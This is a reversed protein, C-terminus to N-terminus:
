RISGRHESARVAEVVREGYSGDTSGAIVLKLEPLARKAIEFARLVHLTRKMARVSGFALLTPRGWSKHPLTAAAPAHGLQSLVTIAESRFGHRVLDRKTSESITVATQRSLARVYLPELMWGFAGLAAPLEHFWVSRALQHAFLVTPEKAYWRAFFPLTNMEDVVVDVNGRLTSRYQRWARPYVSLRGGVRVVRFGDRQIEAAAGPFGAVVFTVEHGMAVLRAALAENVAEAGGARPHDRDKWTM